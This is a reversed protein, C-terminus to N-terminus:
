LINVSWQVAYLHCVGSRLMAHFILKVVVVAECFGYIKYIVIFSLLVKHTISHLVLISKSVLTM